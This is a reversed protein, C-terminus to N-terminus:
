HNQCEPSSTSHTKLSHPLVHSLFGSFQQYLDKPWYLWCLIMCYALLSIMAQAIIKHWWYFGTPLLWQFPLSLRLKEYKPACAALSSLPFSKHPCLSISIALNFLLYPCVYCGVFVWLLLRWPTHPITKFLLIFKRLSFTCHSTICKGLCSFNQWDRSAQAFCLCIFPLSCNQTAPCTFSIIWIKQTWM